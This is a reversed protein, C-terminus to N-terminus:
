PERGGGLGRHRRTSRPVLSVRVSRGAGRHDARAPGPYLETKFIASDAGTGPQTRIVLRGDASWPRSRARGSRASTMPSPSGASLPRAPRPRRRDIAPGDAGAVALAATPPQQPLRRRARRLRQRRSEPGFGIAVRDAPPELRPQRRHRGDRGPRRSALPQGGAPLALAPARRGGRLAAGIVVDRVRSPTGIDSPGGCSRPPPACRPRRVGASRAPRWPPKSSRASWRISSSTSRQPRSRWSRATTM